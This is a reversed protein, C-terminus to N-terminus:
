NWLWSTSTYAGYRRPVSFIAGVVSQFIAHYLTEILVITKMIQSRESWVNLEERVIKRIDEKSPKSKLGSFTEVEQGNNSKGHTLLEILKAFNLTSDVINPQQGSISTKPLYAEQINSKESYGSLDWLKM